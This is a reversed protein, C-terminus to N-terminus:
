EVRALRRIFGYDNETILIDGDPTMSVARPESIKKGPSRYDEGDGGHSHEADGDLFLHIDGLGDVYWIQGGKHTALLYGGDPHFWIGRVEDLGTSLAPEGDGGGTRTGNGAIVRKEGDAEVRYVRHSLRDTVALEGNGDVALNGLSAFGSALTVVGLEPTWTKLATGAAVYARSEDDAVWLGRGTGAGGIVFLTTLEGDPALRRVRDNGLDLIYLTGDARVWLGNPASLRRQTGPGPSDGDDGAEGTGAVTTLSGDLGIKRIAHADKDAIYINGVSDAQAM